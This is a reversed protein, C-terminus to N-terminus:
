GSRLSNELIELRRKLLTLENDITDGFSLVKKNLQRVRMSLLFSFTISLVLLSYIGSISLNLLDEVM